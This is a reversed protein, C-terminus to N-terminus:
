RKGGSGTDRSGYREHLKGALAAAEAEASLALAPIVGASVSAVSLLCADRVRACNSRSAM